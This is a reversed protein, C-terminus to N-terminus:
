NKEDRKAKRTIDFVSLKRRRRKEREEEAARFRAQAIAEDANSPAMATTRPPAKKKKRKKREKEVAAFKGTEDATTAISHTTIPKRRTAKRLSEVSAFYGDMQTPDSEPVASATQKPQKDNDRAILIFGGEPRVAIEIVMKHTPQKIGERKEYVIIYLKGQGPISVEPFELHLLELESQADQITAYPKARKIARMVPHGWNPHKSTPRKKQPHSALPREVKTATLTFLGNDLTVVEMRAFNGTFGAIEQTEDLAFGKIWFIVVPHDKSSQLQEKSLVFHEAIHKFRSLAQAKEKYRYHGGVLAAITPHLVTAYKRNPIAM